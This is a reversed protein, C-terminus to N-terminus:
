AVRRRKQDDRVSDTVMARAKIFINDDIKLPGIVTAGWGLTVHDGIVPGGLWGRDTDKEGRGGLAAQGFITVGRGIRAHITTGVTHALYFGPGIRSAPIIDCGFLVINALYFPDALLRWGKTHFYHALRHLLIALLSPSLLNRIQNVATPEKDLASLRAANDERLFSLTERLSIKRPEYYSDSLLM